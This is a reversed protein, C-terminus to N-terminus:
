EDKVGEHFIKDLVGNIMKRVDDDSFSKALRVAEDIVVVGPTDTYLMEYIAMRLIAQDTNGLRDMKWGDLYRNAISDIDKKNNIVGMVIEDIFENDIPYVDKIVDKIDYEIKNKDYVNVQYLITMIYNRLDTRTVKEMVIVM